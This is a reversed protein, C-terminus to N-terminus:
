PTPTLLGTCRWNIEATKTNEDVVCAPNCGPKTANLNADFWWTKSNENYWGSALAEGGKICTQEAITRAASETLKPKLEVLVGDRVAFYTSVGVSPRATMPENPKRVVVNAILMGNRIEMTQPAIRDGLLVANTAAFGTATRLAVAAYYFTGSGGPDNVLMVGADGVGDGNLDGVVPEGFVTLINMTASGPAAPKEVSGNVLAFAEGGITYTINL